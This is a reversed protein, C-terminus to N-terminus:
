RCVSLDCVVGADVTLWTEMRDVDAADKPYLTARDPSDSFGVIQLRLLSARHTLFPQSDTTLNPREDDNATSSTM